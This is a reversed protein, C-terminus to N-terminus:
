LVSSNNSTSIDHHSLIATPFVSLALFFFPGRVSDELEPSSKKRGDGIAGVDKPRSANLCSVPGFVDEKGAAPSTRAANGIMTQQHFRNEAINSFTDIARPWTTGYPQPQPAWISSTPALPHRPRPPSHGDRHTFLPQPHSPPM